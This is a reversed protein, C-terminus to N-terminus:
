GALEAVRRELDKAIQEPADSERFRTPSGVSVKIQGPRAWRRGAAKLEFIGDL